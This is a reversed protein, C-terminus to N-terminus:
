VGRAYYNHTNIVNHNHITSTLIITHTTNETCYVINPQSVLVWFHDMFVRSFHTQHLIRKAHVHINYHIAKTSLTTNPRINVKKVGSERESERESKREGSEM